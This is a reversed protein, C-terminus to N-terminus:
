RYRGTAMMHAKILTPAYAQQIDPPANQLAHLSDELAPAHEPGPAFNQSGGPVGGDPGPFLAEADAARRDFVNGGAMGAASIGTGVLSNIKGLPNDPMKPTPNISPAKSEGMLSPGTTESPPKAPDIIGGLSGAQHGISAGLVPNGAFAGIVGGLAAGGLSLIDGSGSKGARRKMVNELAM